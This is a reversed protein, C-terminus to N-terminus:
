QSIFDNAFRIADLVVSKEVDTHIIPEGLDKLLVWHVTNSIRKKDYAVADYIEEFDVDFGPVIFDMQRMLETAGQFKNEPLLIEERSLYLAALMGWYVAEGHNLVSYKTVKELAHGLTHGFNLFRRINGEQFDQTVVRVKEEASLRVIEPLNERVAQMGSSLIGFIKQDGIFAYKIVEGM